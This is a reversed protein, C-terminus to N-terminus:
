LAYSPGSRQHEAFAVHSPCQLCWLMRLTYALCARCRAPYAPQRGGPGSREGDDANNGLMQMQSISPQPAHVTAGPNDRQECELTCTRLVYRVLRGM